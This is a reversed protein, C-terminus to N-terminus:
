LLAASLLPQRAAGTGHCHMSSGSLIWVASGSQSAHRLKRSHSDRQPIFAKRKKTLQDLHLKKVAVDVDNWKGKLVVGFSGRGLERSEDTTIKLSCYDIHSINPDPVTTKLDGTFRSQGHCEGHFFPTVPLPPVSMQRQAMVLNRFFDDTVRSRWYDDRRRSTPDMAAFERGIATAFNVSGDKTRPVWDPLPSASSTCASAV